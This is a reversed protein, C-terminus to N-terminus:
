LIFLPYFRLLCLYLIDYFQKKGQVSDLNLINSKKELSNMVMNLLDPLLPVEYLMIIMFLYQYDMQLSEM